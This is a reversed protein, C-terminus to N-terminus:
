PYYKINYEVAVNCGTSKPVCYVGDGTCTCNLDSANTQNVNENCYMPQPYETTEIPEETRQPSYLNLCEGEDVTTGECNETTCKQCDIETNSDKEYCTAGMENLMALANGNGTNQSYYDLNGYTTKACYTTSSGVNSSM